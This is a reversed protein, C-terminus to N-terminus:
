LRRRRSIPLRAALSWPGHYACVGSSGVRQSSTTCAMSPSRIQSSGRQRLVTRHDDAGSTQRALPASLEAPHTQNLTRRVLALLQRRAYINFSEKKKLAGCSLRVENPM